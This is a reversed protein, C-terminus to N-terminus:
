AADTEAASGGPVAREGIYDAPDSGPVAILWRAFGAADRRELEDMAEQRRLVVAERVATRLPGALVETTRLWERGLAHTTMAGVPPPLPLVHGEKAASRERPAVTGHRAADAAPTPAQWPRLVLLLGAILGATPVAAAAGVLVGAGAIALMAGVTCGAAQVAADLASRNRLPNERVTVGVVAAALGGAIGVVGLVPGPSALGGILALAGVGGLALWLLV